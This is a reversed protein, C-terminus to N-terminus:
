LIDTNLLPINGEPIDSSRGTYINSTEREIEVNVNKEPFEIYSRPGFVIQPDNRQKLIHGYIIFLCLLVGLGTFGATMWGFIYYGQPRNIVNVSIEQKEEYVLFFVMYSVFALILSIIGALGCIYIYKPIYPDSYFSGM